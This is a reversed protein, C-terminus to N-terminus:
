LGSDPPERGDSDTIDDLLSGTEDPKDEDPVGEEELKQQQEKIEQQKEQEQEIDKELQESQKESHNNDNDSTLTKYGIIAAVLALAAKRWRDPAFILFAVLTGAGFVILYLKM